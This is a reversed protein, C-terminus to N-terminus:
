ESLRSGPNYPLKGVNRVSGKLFQLLEHKDEANCKGAEIERAVRLASGWSDKEQRREFNNRETDRWDTFPRHHQCFWRARREGNPKESWVPVLGNLDVPYGKATRQCTECTYTKYVKEGSEQEWGCAGCSKAKNALSEGCQPCSKM